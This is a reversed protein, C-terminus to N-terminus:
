TSRRVCPRSSSRVCCTAQGSCRRASPARPGGGTGAVARREEVADHLTAHVLGAPRTQRAITALPRRRRRSRPREAHSPASARPRRSSCRALELPEGGLPGGGAPSRRSRRGSGHRRARCRVVNRQAIAVRSAADRRRARRPVGRVATGSRRRRVPRAPPRRAAQRTRGTHPQAAPSIARGIQVKEHARRSAVPALRSV